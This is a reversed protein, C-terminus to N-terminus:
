DLLKLGPSFVPVSHMYMSSMTLGPISGYWASYDQSRQAAVGSAFGNTGRFTINYPQIGGPMYHTKAASYVIEIVFLLSSFLFLFM